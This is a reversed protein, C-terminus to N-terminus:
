LGLAQKKENIEVRLMQGRSEVRGNMDYAPLVFMEDLKKEASALKSRWFEKDSRRATEAEGEQCSLIAQYLRSLAALYSYAEDLGTTLAEAKTLHTRALAFDPLSIYCAGLIAHSLAVEEPTDLDEDAAGDRHAALSEELQTELRSIRERLAPKPYHQYQNWFLSLELAITIRVSEFWEAGANLRGDGVWRESKARYFKMRKELYLESSPPQGMFRKRLFSSPVKAYLARMEADQESTRQASPLEQLCSAALAFYTPHSWSNLDAMRVFSAAADAFKGQSLLVWCLEFQLTSKAQRYVNPKTLASQLQEVAMDVQGNVRALKAKNSLWLTGSEHKQLSREVINSCASVLKERDAQWGSSLLIGMYYVMLALSAFSAHLDVGTM